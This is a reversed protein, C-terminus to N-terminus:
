SLVSILEPFWSETPNRPNWTHRHAQTGTNIHRHKSVAHFAIQYCHNQQKECVSTEQRRSRTELARLEAQQLDPETQLLFLPHLICVTRERLHLPIHPPLLKWVTGWKSAQDWQIGAQVGTQRDTGEEAIWSPVSHHPSHLLPLSGTCFSRVVPWWLSNHRTSGLPMLDKSPYVSYGEQPWPLLCAYLTPINQSNDPLNTRGVSPVPVPLSCPEIQPWVLSNSGHIVTICPWCRLPAFTDIGSKVTICPWCRLPAFTDIGSKVTICPWCRLPAFTDIGSM